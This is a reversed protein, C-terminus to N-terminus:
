NIRLIEQATIKYTEKSKKIYVAYARKHAPSEKGVLGFVIHVKHKPYIKELIRFVEAKIESEHGPYEKDIIIKNHPKIKSIALAIITSFTKYTFQKPKGKERFYKLSKRKESGSISITISKSNALAIVTISNTQEIKGSQDVEYHM